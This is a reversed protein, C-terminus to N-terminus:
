HALYILLCREPVMFLFTTDWNDLFTAALSHLFILQEWEQAYWGSYLASPLCLFSNCLPSIYICAKGSCLSSCSTLSFDVSQDGGLTRSRRRDLDTWVTSECDLGLSQERKRPKIPWNTERMSFRPSSLLAPFSQFIFGLFYVPSFPFICMSLWCFQQVAAPVQSMQRKLLLEWLYLSQGM